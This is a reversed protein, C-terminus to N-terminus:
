SKAARLFEVVATLGEVQGGSALANEILTGGLVKFCRIKKAGTNDAVKLRSLNQIM